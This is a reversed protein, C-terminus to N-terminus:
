GGSPVTGGTHQRPEDGRRLAGDGDDGDRQRDGGRREREEALLEQRVELLVVEQHVPDLLRARRELRHPADGDVGAALQHVDFAHAVEARVDAARFHGVLDDADVEGLEPDAEVRRDVVRRLDGLNLADDVAIGAQRAVQQRIQAFPDLLHQGAGARRDDDADEARVKRLQRRRGAFDPLRKLVTSPTASRVTWCSVTTGCTSTRMRGSAACIAPTVGACTRSEIAVSSRPM